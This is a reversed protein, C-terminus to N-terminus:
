TGGGERYLTVKGTLKYYGSINGGFYEGSIETPNDSTGGTPFSATAGAAGVAAGCFLLVVAAALFVRLITKNMKTEKPSM